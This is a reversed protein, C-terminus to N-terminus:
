NTAAQEQCIATLLSIDILLLKEALHSIRSGFINKHVVRPSSPMDKRYYIEYTVLIPIDIFLFLSNEKKL